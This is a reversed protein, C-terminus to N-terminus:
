DINGRRWPQATGPPPRDRPHRVLAPAGVLMAFRDTRHNARAGPGAPQRPEPSAEQAAGMPVGDVGEGMSVATATLGARREASASIGQRCTATAGAAAPLVLRGVPQREPASRQRITECEPQASLVGRRPSMLRRRVGAGPRRRRGAPRTELAAPAPRTRCGTAPRQCAPERGDRGPDVGDQALVPRPPGARRRREVGLHRSRITTPRLCLDAARAARCGCGIATDPM